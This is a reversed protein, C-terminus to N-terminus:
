SRGGYEDCCLGDMMILAGGLWVVWKKQIEDCDCFGSAWVPLCLRVWGMEREREREREGGRERMGVLGFLGDKWDGRMM